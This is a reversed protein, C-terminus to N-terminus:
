RQDSASTKLFSDIAAFANRAAKLAASAQGSDPTDDGLQATITELERTHARIKQTFDLTIQNM